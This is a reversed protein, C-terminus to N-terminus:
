FYEPYQELKTELATIFTMVLLLQLLFPNTEDELNHDMILPPWSLFYLCSSQPAIRFLVAWQSARPECEAVNRTCALGTQRPITDCVVPQASRCWGAILFIGGVPMGVPWDSPLGVSMGVLWDSLPRNEKGVSTGKGLCKPHECYRENTVLHNLFRHPLLFNSVSMTLAGMHLCFHAKYCREVKGYTSIKYFNSSIFWSTCLSMFLFTFYFNAGGICGRKAKFGHEPEGQSVPLHWLICAQTEGAKCRLCGPLDRSFM